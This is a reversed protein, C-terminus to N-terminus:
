SVSGITPPPLLRYWNNSNSFTGDYSWLPIGDSSDVDITSVYGIDQNQFDTRNLIFKSKTGVSSSQVTIPLTKTGTMILTSTITVTQGTNLNVTILSTTTRASLTTLSLNQSGNFTTNGVITINNLSLGSLNNTLTTNAIATGGLSIIASTTTVSGSTILMTGQNYNFRTGSAFVVNGVIELNSRMIGGNTGTITGSTVKILATGAVISSTTGGMTLGNNAFITKTPIGSSNITTTVSNTGLTLLGNVNLNQSLTVIIAFKATVNNWTVASVSLNSNGVLDLTSGATTIVGSVYTLSGTGYGITGSLTINGNLNTNISLRGGGSWVGGNLNITTTGTGQTMALSSVTLGGNANITYTGSVTGNGGLTLLGNVNLNSLLTLNYNTQVILNNWTIASTNLSYNRGTLTSSTTVVTGNIHTITNGNVSVTGLITITGSTNITLNNKLVSSGSWTGTGNLIFTTTVSVTSTQNVTFNGGVSLTYAGSINTSSTGGITVNGSVIWNDALSYNRNVGGFILSGTLTKGGSTLTGNDNLSLTGTGTITMGPVFTVNGSVTLIKGSSITLTNVYNTFNISLCAATTVNITLSGSTSTAVVDDSATPILGGVWTSVSDWNGGINSITRTAM